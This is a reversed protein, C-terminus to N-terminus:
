EYKNINLNQRRSYEEFDFYELETFYGTKDLTGSNYGLNRFDNWSLNMEIGFQSGLYFHERGKNDKPHLMSLPENIEECWEEPIRDRNNLTPYVGEKINLVEHITNHPYIACGETKIRVKM